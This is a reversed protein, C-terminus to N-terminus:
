RFSTLVLGVSCCALGAWVNWTLAEGFVFRGLMVPVIVGTAAWFIAARGLAGGSARLVGLWLASVLVYSALAAALYGRGLSDAWRKAALDGLAV